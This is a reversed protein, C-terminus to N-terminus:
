STTSFPSSASLPGQGSPGYSAVQIAYSTSATLGSLLCSTTTTQCVQVGNAFVRYGIVPAATTTGVAAWSVNLSSSTAVAAIGAPAVPTSFAPASGIYVVPSLAMYAMLNSHSTSSGATQNTPTAATSSASFLPLDATHSTSGYSNSPMAETPRGPYPNYLYSRDWSGPDAQFSAGYFTFSTSHSHSGASSSTIAPHDHGISHTHSDSVHTHTPMQAETITEYSSGGMEGLVDFETQLTNVSVLLRGTFSPRAFTTSGDGTGYTTGIASFLASYSSRSALSGNATDWGAVAASSASFVSMGAAVQPTAATAIIFRTTRYPQLNNHATGSGTSANTQTSGGSTGAFAPVDLTSTHGGATSSGTSASTRTPYPNFVYPYDWGGAAGNFSNSYYSFSTTHNHSGDSTTSIAAHDHSQDHLHANQVHTHSPMESTTLAVTSVGGTEGLADFSTQASDFGVPTRGRLDPVNFTTSGDGVGFSTGTVAFLTGGTSRSLASGDTLAWGTPTTAGTNAVVMGPQLASALSTSIIYRLAMYPQLNTHATSGGTSQNTATTSGTNVALNPLDVTHQHAGDTSSTQTSASRYGPYPNNIAMWDWSGASGIFSSVYYAYTSTHSHSGDASTSAAAHDHNTTHAHSSVTHTHSPMQATTLAVSNAGGTEGLVDFETQASDQGVITRGKLNPVNFTTSGDGAGYTVGISSFLEPYTARSVASGDALVWGSPATSGTYAVVAGTPLHTLTISSSAAYSSAGAVNVASVRFTYSYSNTLGTFVLSTAGAAATRVSGGTVGQAETGDAARAEISYSTIASGGNSAPATWRVTASSAGPEATVGTPTSPTTRAVVSTSSTSAPGTGAVNVASVRFIYSTGNTLGTVTASTATSTGDAFTM